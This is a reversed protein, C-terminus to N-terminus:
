PPVYAPLGQRAGSGQAHELHELGVGEKGPGPPDLDDDPLLQLRQGLLEIDDGLQAAPARRPAVVAM